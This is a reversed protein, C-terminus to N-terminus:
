FLLFCRSLIARFGFVSGFHHSPISTNYSIAICYWTGESIEFRNRMTKDSCCDAVDFDLWTEFVAFAEPDGVPEPGFGGCISAHQNISFACIWVTTQLCGTDYRQLCSILYM